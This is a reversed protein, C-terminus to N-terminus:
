KNLFKLVIIGLFYLALIAASMILQTFPDTSPTLIAGIITSLVIIYKWASLMQDSSLIELLGILIQLIPIQFALGTSFLLLLIFDFYQEFSWLPEIIDSGYSIFFNLAAPALIYYGFVIGTFFLFISGMLSPIFFLAEKKTLGPLVFQMLQYIAFPCSLLVGSYLGIKLSVFFYEGPALQLFKVGNAPQQLFITLSKIQFLCIASSLGFIIFTVFIRGRLEDLHGSIPMTLDNSQNEINHQNLESTM